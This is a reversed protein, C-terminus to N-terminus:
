GLKALEPQATAGHSELWGLMVANARPDHRIRHNAGFILRLEAGPSNRALQKADNVPVQHDEVGHLILLPRGSLAASADIPRNERLEKAWSSLSPPFNPNSVIGLSRCHELFRRPDSAWDDFDARPALAVVGSVRKDRAAALMAISGGTTSGVLWVHKGHHTMLYDVCREVDNIWGPVSFNGESDGCGRMSVALVTWGLSLAIREAFRRYTRNPVGPRQKSPVGHCLVVTHASDSHSPKIVYAALKPDGAITVDTFTVNRTQTASETQATGNAQLETM